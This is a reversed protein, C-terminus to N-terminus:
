LEMLIVKALVSSVRSLRSSWMKASEKMPSLHRSTLMIALSGEADEVQDLLRETESVSLTM